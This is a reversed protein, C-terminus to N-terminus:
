IRNKGRKATPLWSFGLRDRIRRFQDENRGAQMKIWPERIQKQTPVDELECTVREIVTCFDQESRTLPTGESLTSQPLFESRKEIIKLLHAIEHLFTSGGREIADVIRSGIFNRFEYKLDLGSHDQDSTQHTAQIITAWMSRSLLRERLYEPKEPLILYSLSIAWESVSGDKNRGRSFLSGKESNSIKSLQRAPDIEVFSMKLCGKALVRPDNVFIISGSPFNGSAEFGYPLLNKKMTKQHSHPKKILFLARPKSNLLTRAKM